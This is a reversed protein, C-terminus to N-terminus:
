RKLGPLIRSVGNDREVLIRAVDGPASPDFWVDVQDDVAIPRDPSQAAQVTVWRDAGVHDRFTVTLTALKVNPTAAFAALGDDTVRGVVRSGRRLAHLRSQRRLRRLRALAALAAFVGGAAFLSVHATRPGDQVRVAVAAALLLSTLYSGGTVHAPAMEGLLSRMSWATSVLLGVFCVIGAPVVALIWWPESTETVTSLTGALAAAAVVGVVLM